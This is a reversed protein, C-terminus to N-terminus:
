MAYLLHATTGQRWLHAPEMAQTHQTHTCAQRCPSNPVDHRSTVSNCAKCLRSSHERVHIAACAPRYCTPRAHLCDRHDESQAVASESTAVASESTAVARVASSVRVTTSNQGHRVYDHRMHDHRHPETWVGRGEVRRGRGGQM